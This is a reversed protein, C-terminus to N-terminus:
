NNIKIMHVNIQIQTSPLLGNRFNLTSLTSQLFILIKGSFTRTIETYSHQRLASLKKYKSVVVTYISEIVSTSRLTLKQTKIESLLSYLPM